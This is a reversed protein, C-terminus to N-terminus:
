IVYYLLVRCAAAFSNSLNDGTCVPFITRRSSVVHCVMRATVISILFLSRPTPQNPLLHFSKLFIILEIFLSWLADTVTM